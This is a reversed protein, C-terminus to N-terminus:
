GDPRATPKNAKSGAAKSFSIALRRLLKRRLLFADETAQVPYEQFRVARPPQPRKANMREVADCSPRRAPRRFRTM